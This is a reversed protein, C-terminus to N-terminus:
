GRGREKSEPFLEELKAKWATEMEPAREDSVGYLVMEIYAMTGGATPQSSVSLVSGNIDPLLGCFHYEGRVAIELRGVMAAEIRSLVDHHTVGHGRRTVTINHVSDGRHRELGERLRFFCDQWGGRTGEYELDWGEDAGFGSHVLRLMTKGGESELYYDQVLRCSEMRHAEPGMGILHDRTEVLRLHRNPEWIEVDTKWVIGSGWDATISGGVRPEVTMKPAFWRAIEDAETLAKWVDDISADIEIRTEHSRGAAEVNKKLDSDAM